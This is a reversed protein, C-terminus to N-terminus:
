DSYIFANPMRSFVLAVIFAASQINIPKGAMHSTWAEM